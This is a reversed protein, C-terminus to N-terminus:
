PYTQTLLIPRTTWCLLPFVLDQMMLKQIPDYFDVGIIILDFDGENIESRIQWEPPEDRLKFTGSVEWNVLRQAVQRLHRGLQCNSDLLEPLGQQLEAYMVPVNPIVPLITLTAESAIAVRVAWEEACVDIDDVQLVLLIHRIPWRTEKLSLISTDCHQFLKKEGLTPALNQQRSGSTSPCILLYTDLRKIEETLFSFPHNKREAQEAWSLDANFLRTFSRIFNQHDLGPNVSVM